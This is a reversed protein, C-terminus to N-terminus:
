WLLLLLYYAVVYGYVMYVIYVTTLFPDQSKLIITYYHTMTMPIM